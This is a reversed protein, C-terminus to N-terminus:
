FLSKSGNVLKLMSCENAFAYHIKGLGAMKASIKKDAYKLEDVNLNKPTSYELIFDKYESVGLCLNINWGFLYFDLLNKKGFVSTPNDGLTSATIEGNLSYQQDNGLATNPLPFFITSRIVDPLIDKMLFVNKEYTSETSDPVGQMMYAYSRMENERIAKFRSKIVENSVNRNLVKKRIEEDGSEIGMKIEVCGSQALITLVDDPLCNVHSNILLPLNIEKKYRECFEMVWNRRLTFIDDHFFVKSFNYTTKIENIEGIVNDVSRQRLFKNGYLDRLAFNSCYNCNYPCGRQAIFDILGGRANIIKQMQFSERDTFPLSDLDEVMQGTVIKSDPNKSSLLDTIVKEGEGVVVFDFLNFGDDSKCFTAHPGGLVLKANTKERLRLALEKAFCWEFTSSTIGIITPKFELIDKVCKEINPPNGLESHVHYVSVDAGHRKAVAALIGISPGYSVHMNYNPWVFIIRQNM